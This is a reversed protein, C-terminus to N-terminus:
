KRKWFILCKIMLNVYELNSFCGAYLRGSRLLQYFLSPFYAPQNFYFRRVTNRKKNFIYRKFRTPEFCDKEKNLQILHDLWGTIEMLSKIDTIKEDQFLLERVCEDNLSVNELLCSLMRVRCLATNQVQTNKEKSSVQDDHCRYSLLVDPINAIKGLWICRTWLEYDEVHLFENRYRLNHNSIFSRRFMVTPHGLPCFELLDIKIDEHATSHRITIDTDMLQYATGCLMIDPYQNLYAIQKELRNPYSIDDGDMRAVYKGLSLELGLNLSAVLGTKTEKQILKIRNDQYGNIHKVTNDTSCDDIILLEFNTFTQSLISDIAQVIFPGCNYVPM